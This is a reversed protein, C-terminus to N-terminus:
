ELLRWGYDVGAFLLGMSVQDIGLELNDKVGMIDSGNGDVLVSHTSLAGGM